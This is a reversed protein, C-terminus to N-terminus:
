SPHADRGSALRRVALAVLVGVFFAIALDIVFATTTTPLLGSHNVQHCCGGNDIIPDTYSGDSFRLVYTLTVKDGGNYNNLDRFSLSTTGGASVQDILGATLGTPKATGVGVWVPDSAFHVQGGNAGKQIEFTFTPQDNYNANLHPYNNPGGAELCHQINWGKNTGQDIYILKVPDKSGCSM